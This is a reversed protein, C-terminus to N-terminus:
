KISEIMMLIVPAHKEMWSKEMSIPNELSKKLRKIEAEWPALTIAHAKLV